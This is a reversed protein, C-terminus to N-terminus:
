TIINVIPVLSTLSKLWNKILSKAKLGLNKQFIKELKISKNYLNFNGRKIM